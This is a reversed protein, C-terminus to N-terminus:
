TGDPNRWSELWSGEAGFM